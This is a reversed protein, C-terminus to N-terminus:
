NELAQKELLCYYFGDMQSQGPLIQLGIKSSSLRQLSETFAVLKASTEQALFREIQHINEQPLISCTAYLLQGGPKLAPWAQQLIMAQINVLENIDSERRLLKIDPHRRIVGTASCPVDLLIQDFQQPAEQLYELLDHCIVKADLELRELNEEIRQCRGDDIDVASLDLQNNSYELLHATKGGPAACGDLLKMGAKPKLIWAALQAAADQVSVWGEAFKPLATVKVPEALVIASEVLEHAKGDIASQSLLSLYDERSTKSLNVRLTLPAQQNSNALIQDVQGKYSPKIKNILWDPMAFKTDWNKDLAQNIAEKQRLYNRLVANLLKKVWPKKLQECAEVTEAIAAHDPIRSYQLQYLGVIILCLIDSDKNRLPKQLLQNAMAELRIYYRCSNLVLSKFLSVDASNDFEISALLDTASRGHFAIEVLSKAAQSRIHSSEFIM